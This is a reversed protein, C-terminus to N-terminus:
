VSLHVQSVEELGKTNEAIEQQVRMEENEAKKRALDQLAKLSSEGGDLNKKMDHIRHTLTEQRTNNM